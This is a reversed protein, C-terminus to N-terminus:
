LTPRTPDPVAGGPLVPHGRTAGLLGLDRLRRVLLADHGKGRHCWSGPSAEADGDELLDVLYGVVRAAQGYTEPDGLGPHLVASAAQQRRLDVLVVLPGDTGASGTREHLEQAVAPESVVEGLSAGCRLAGERLAHVLYRQHRPAEPRLVLLLIRGHVACALYAGLGRLRQRRIPDRLETLLRPLHAAQAWSAGDGVTFGGRPALPLHPAGQVIRPLAQCDEEVRRVFSAVAKGAEGVPRSRRRLAHVLALMEPWGHADVGNTRRARGHDLTGVHISALQRQSPEIPQGSSALRHLPHVSAQLAESAKNVVPMLSGGAPRTVEVVLALLEPRRAGAVLATRLLQLVDARTTARRDDDDDLVPLFLPGRIPFFAVVWASAFRFLLRRCLALLEDDGWRRGGRRERLDMALNPWLTGLMRSWRALPKKEALVSSDFLALDAAIELPAGALEVWEDWGPELAIAAHARRLREFLGQPGDDVRPDLGHVVGPLRKLYAGLAPGWVGERQRSLRLHEVEHAIAPWLVPNLLRQASVEFYALAGGFKLRLSTEAGDVLVPTIHRCGREILLEALYAQFGDRLRVYGARAEYGTTTRDAARGSRAQMMRDLHRYARRTDPGATPAAIVERIWTALPEALDLHGEIRDRDSLIGALEGVLSLAANTRGYAWHGRAAADKLASLATDEDGRVPLWRARAGRLAEDLDSAVGRHGSPGVSRGGRWPRVVLHSRRGDAALLGAIEGVSWGRWTSESPDADAVVLGAGDQARPLRLLRAQRCAIAQTWPEREPARQVLEFPMGVDVHVAGFLPTDQLPDPGTVPFPLERLRRSARGLDLGPTDAATLRRLADIARTLVGLDPSRALFLLEATDLGPVVWCALHASCWGPDLRDAAVLRDSLVDCLGEVLLDPLVDGLAFALAPELKARAVAHFPAATDVQVVADWLARDRILGATSRQLLGPRPSAAAAVYSLDPLADLVILDTAGLTVLELGPTRAGWARDRVLQRQLRISSVTEWPEDLLVHADVSVFVPRAARGM